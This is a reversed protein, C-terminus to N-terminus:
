LCAARVESVKHPVRLNVSGESIPEITMSGGQSSMWVEADVSQRESLPRFAIERIMWKGIYGM